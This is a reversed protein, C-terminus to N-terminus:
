PDDEVLEPIDDVTPAKLTGALIAKVDLTGDILAEVDAKAQGVLAVGLVRLVEARRSAASIRAQVERPVLPIPITEIDDESIVPYTTETCRQAIFLKGSPRRLYEQLFRPLVKEQDCQIRALFVSCFAGDDRETVCAVAGRDPRRTSMLIDDTRVVRQANKPTEEPTCERGGSITGEEADIDSIEIYRVMGQPRNKGRNCRAVRALPVTRVSRSGLHVQLDSFVQRYYGANLWRTLMEDGPVWRSLGEHASLHSEALMQEFAAAVQQRERLARTRCREALEVKAGIYDQIHRDPRPVPVARLEENGIFEVTTNTRLRSRWATGHSSSLYAALYFPNCGRVQSFFVTGSVLATRDAKSVYTTHQNPGKVKILLSGDTLSGKPYRDLMWREVYRVSSWNVTMTSGDLDVGSIFPVAGEPAEGAAFTTTKQYLVRRPNVLCRDLPVVDRKPFHALSSDLSLYGHHFYSADLRGGIDNPSVWVCSPSTSQTVTM